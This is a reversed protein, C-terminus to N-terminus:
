FPYGIAFHLSQSDKFSPLNYFGNKYPVHLGIGWDLRLVFFELDYRIGIGTGLAMEKFMNKAQLKSGARYGDDRLAWVNGADIFLAGYLNGFLRPRYELNAQLKLDGTQDMYSLRSQSTYYRGPGISRVNFARISNAGGVYFQESYPASEANGYSWIIGANVHGVLQSHEAIQWTKRLDTEVKLFQAYPNKFMTKGKKSWREGFAMYGLSLLNSAESVTTQWYIPNRYAAPSQHTYTFRMKPVFQDAMTIMLYPSQKLIEGFKETQSQMYEYQLILPSFQYQNTASPQVTYTLEGSVIHRKFFGSRNIVDSSAKILTNPTTYYPKVPEGRKRRMRRIRNFLRDVFLLRPIELSVDAGYEYSNFKSSTGDARHGTQWEYSGKLNLSLKEGGHFANRKAFGLTLGPGVRGTTKGVLNAEVYVDYPKDFVCNLTMDLTDCASSTDRPAFSLDVRSFLGKATLTNITQQYNDYSYLQRPRIKMDRTIARRNIPPRKGAYAMTYNRQRLTDTLQQMANRRMELNIRGIYWKRGVQSPLSDAYQLRVQAQNVKAITDALYTAYGPQYYFYGNNRLLTSVRTREADLTSVDFPDGAKVLASTATSDILRKAEAPFNTYVLTDVTTLDGLNVTYGIKAKKSSDASAIDYNVYAGFYGRARLLERAVQSRLTPNVKSLLVPQKGFTKRVWRGIGDDSKAFANYIWLRYPFPTRYYPSGFIAGNPETALAAEVEEQTSYFHASPKYNEYKIKRLGTFLKDGDPVSSTESCSVLLVACLITYILRKM